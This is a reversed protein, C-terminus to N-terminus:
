KLPVWSNGGGSGRSAGDREAPSSRASTFPWSLALRASSIAAAPPCLKNMHFEDLGWYLIQRAPHDSPSAARQGFPHDHPIERKRPRCFGEM